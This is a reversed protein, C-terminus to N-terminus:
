IHLQTVLLPDNDTGDENRRHEYPTQEPHALRRLLYGEDTVEDYCDDCDDAAPIM